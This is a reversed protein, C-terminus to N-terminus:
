GILIDATTEDIDVEMGDVTASDENLLEYLALEEEYSSNACEEFLDVWHRNQFNFLQVLTLKGGSSPYSPLEDDEVAARCHDAILNHFGPARGSEHNLGEDTSPIIDENSALSEPQPIPPQAATSLEDPPTTKSRSAFMRKMRTKTSNLRHENCVHMKLEAISSLTSTGM